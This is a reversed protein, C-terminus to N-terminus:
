LILYVMYGRALADVFVFITRFLTWERYGFTDAEDMKTGSQIYYKQFLSNFFISVIGSGYHVAALLALFPHASKFYVFITLWGLIDFINSVTFTWLTQIDASGHPVIQDYGLFKTGTFIHAWVQYLNNGATLFWFLNNLGHNYIQSHLYVYLFELKILSFCTILSISLSIGLSKYFSTHM